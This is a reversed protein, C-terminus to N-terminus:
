SLKTISIKTTSYNTTKKPYIKVLLEDNDNKVVKQNRRIRTENDVQYQTRLSISPDQKRLKIKETPHVKYRHHKAQVYYEGNLYKM